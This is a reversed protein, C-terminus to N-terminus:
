YAMIFDQYVKEMENTKLHGSSKIILSHKLILRDGKSMSLEYVPEYKSFVNMGFNNIAFLGYHRAMWYSPFNINDPHDCMGVTISDGNLITSLTVWKNRTGWTEKGTIGSSSEYFGCLDENNQIKKPLPKGIKDTLSVPKNDPMEFERSLRIAFLGEKSDKIVVKEDIAKLSTVRDVRRINESAFFHFITTEKILIEGKNTQWILNETFGADQIGSFISDFKEHVIIGYKDKLERPISDSNNWFDIGNINGFNFWCGVQHPHDAREGEKAELPFRRTIVDGNPSIVPYFFPKADESSYRYSTFFQDEVFINLCSAATDNKFEIYLTPKEPDIDKIEANSQALSYVTFFLFVFFPPKIM